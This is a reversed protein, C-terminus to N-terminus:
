RRVTRHGSSSSSGESGNEKKEWPGDVSYGYNQQPFFCAPITPNTHPQYLCGRKQCSDATPLDVGGQREPWCDIRSVAAEDVSMGNVIYTQSATSAEMTMWLSTKIM